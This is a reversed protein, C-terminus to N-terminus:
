LVPLNQRPQGIEAGLYKSGRASSGVQIALFGWACEPRGLRRQLEM